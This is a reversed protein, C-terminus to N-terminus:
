EGKYNIYSSDIVEFISRGFSVALGASLPVSNGLLLSFITTTTLILGKDGDSIDDIPELYTSISEPAFRSALSVGITLTAACLGVTAAAGGSMLYLGALLAVKEIIDYHEDLFGTFKNLTDKVTENPIHTFINQSIFSSSM